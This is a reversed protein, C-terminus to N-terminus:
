IIMIYVRDGHKGQKGQTDRWHGARNSHCCGPLDLVPARNLKVAWESRAAISGHWALLCYRSVKCRSVKRTLLYQRKAKCLLITTQRSPCRWYVAGSVLCRQAAVDVKPLKRVGALNNSLVICLMCELPVGLIFGRIFLLRQALWPIIRIIIVM